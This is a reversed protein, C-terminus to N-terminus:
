NKKIEETNKKGSISEIFKEVLEVCFDVPLDEVEDASALPKGDKDTVFNELIYGCIAVTANVDNQDSANKEVESSFKQFADLEKWNLKKFAIEVGQIVVINLAKKLLTLLKM